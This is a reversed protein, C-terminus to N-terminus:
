RGVACPLEGIVGIGGGVRDMGEPLAVGLAAESLPPARAVALVAPAEEAEGDEAADLVADAHAATELEANAVADLDPVALAHVLPALPHAHVLELIHVPVPDPIHCPALVHDLVTNSLFEHELVPELAYLSSSSHYM